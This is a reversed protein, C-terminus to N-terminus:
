RFYNYSHDQRQHRNNWGCPNEPLTSNNRTRRNGPISRRRAEVLPEITLPIGPSVFILDVSAFMDISHGGTEYSINNEEFWALIEPVTTGKPSSDSVAVTAGQQLFFKIAALGTKGLGVVLITKGPFIFNGTDTKTISTAM